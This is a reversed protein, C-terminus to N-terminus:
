PQVGKQRRERDIVITELAEIRNELRTLSRHMEQFQRAEEARQEANGTAERGSEGKLIRIIRILTYCMVPIGVVIFVVIMPIFEEM